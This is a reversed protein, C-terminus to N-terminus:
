AAVRARRRLRWVGAAALALATAASIAAGAIPLWPRFALRVRHTGAPVAVGRLVYNTRLLPAPAGDVSARWGPYDIESLVLFAAATSVTELEIANPSWRTVTARDGAAAPGLDLPAEAEVLALTGPAFPAGDPLRGSQVAALIAEAPLTAVAPTLWARPRADRNGFLAATASTWLLRWRPAALAHAYTLPLASSGVADTLSLRGIHLEVGPVQGEIRVAAVRMRRPLTLRALYRQGEFEGGQQPEFARAQHHRVLPAVDPRAWAWEATDDGARLAREVTDGDADTLLVRGVVTGDAVDQARSLWTVLDIGTAPQQAAAPITLRLSAGAHLTAGLLQPAFRAAGDPAALAAPWEVALYGVNLLDLFLPREAVAVDPISGFFTMDGAFAGYRSLMLPEYGTVSALRWRGLDNRTARLDGASLHAVRTAAADPQAELLRAVWDPPTGIFERQLLIHDVHRGFWLLDAALVAAVAARRPASPRQALAILAAAALAALLLPAAVAPSALHLPPGDAGGHAALWAALGVAAAVAGAGVVVARPHRPLVRTASWAALVALALNLYLANRAAGRFLNWVPVQYALRALPTQAGLMLLLSVGGLLVWFRAQADRAAWPLAALALMPAALGAYGCVEFFNWAGRYPDGPAGGFLFPLLLTPLQRWPLALSTFEAFSLRARPSQAALEPMPVLQAAALLVGAALTLGAAALWRRWGAPGPAALAHYGAYAAGAALLMVPMQPHGAFVALAIAVAGLGVWRLAPRQRLRELSWMLLPLCVAAQVVVVHGLHAILFGGGAFTLGGLLAAFRTCAIARCYAYTALGAVALTALMQVNTAWPEPLLLYLWTGPHFVSMQSVALMPFGAFAYPNWLPWEGARAFDAVLQRNPLAVLLADGPALLVRGLTAEWFLALPAAVLLGLAAVDRRDWRM